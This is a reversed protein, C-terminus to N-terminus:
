SLYNLEKEKKDAQYVILTYNIYDKLDAEIKKLRKSITSHAFGLEKGLQTLTKGRWYYDYLLDQQQQSLRNKIALQLALKTYAYDDSNSSHQLVFPLLFNPTSDDPVHSFSEYRSIKM